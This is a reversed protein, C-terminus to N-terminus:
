TKRKLVIATIDDAPSNDGAAKAFDDLITDLIDKASGNPANKLSELLQKESFKINQTKISEILGDTYMLLTDGKSVNFSLVDVNETFADTGLLMGKLDRDRPKVYLVSGTKQRKIVLNPHSANVYEVGNEKFRLIIGTLYTDVPGIESILDDNINKIALTLSDDIMANFHRSIVSRALLTILGSSIGHGSVDFLSLGKLIGNNEYFDYFDGSVGMLPKFVFAVDWDNSFPPEKPFLQSQINSAINMELEAIRQRARLERNAQKLEAEQHKLETIDRAVFLMGVPNDGLEYMTSASISLTRAAGGGASYIMEYNRVMGRNLAANFKDSFLDDGIVARAKKGILMKESQSFLECAAQNVLHIIGDRDVTFMADTMTDIITQAAFTPTIEVLRYSQLMWISIILFVTFPVYAFPYVPIGYKAIFDVVGISAIGLAIGMIKIRRQYISGPAAKRYEIAAHVACLPIILFFYMLFPISLWGYKPYYGWWFHYLSGIMADTTLIAASFLISVVWNIWALRRWNQYIGLGIIVFLYIAAPICPVGIYGAKAWFLAVSENNSSYLFTFAFFWESFALTMLFFALSIRSARERIFLVFGLFFIGVSVVATPISYISFTYSAPDLIQSFMATGGNM